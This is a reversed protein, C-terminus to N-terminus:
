SPRPFLSAHVPIQHSFRLSLFWKPSGPM